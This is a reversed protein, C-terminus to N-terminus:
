KKLVFSQISNKYDVFHRMKFGGITCFFDYYENKSYHTDGIIMNPKYLARHNPPFSNNDRFNKYNLIWKICYKLYRVFYDFSSHFPEAIILIETKRNSIKKIEEILDLPKAINHFSNVMLIIDFTEGKFRTNTVDGHILDVDYDAKYYNLTKIAIDHVRHLSFDIGTFKKPARDKFLKSEFWCTGCCLSLINKDFIEIKHNGLILEIQKYINKLHQDKNLRNLDKFIKKNEQELDNWYLERSDEIKGGKEKIWSKINIKM